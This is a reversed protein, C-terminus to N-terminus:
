LSTYARLQAYLASAQKLTPTTPDSAQVMLIQERQAMSGSGFALFLDGNPTPVTTCAELDLKFRKNGRLDDFQRAGAEGAALTIAEVTLSDPDIFVLFNADDQVLALKDGLWSLSSGARVHAPRDNSLDAGQSYFLSIRKQVIAKLAPDRKAQIISVTAESLAKGGMM